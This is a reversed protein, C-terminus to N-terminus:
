FGNSLNNEIEEDAQKAAIILVYLIFALNAGIITGIGLGLLFM